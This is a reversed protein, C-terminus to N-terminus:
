ETVEEIEKKQWLRQSKAQFFLKTVNRIWGMHWALHLLLGAMMLYGSYVHIDTVMMKVSKGGSFLHFDLVVGTTICIFAAIFLMVDLIYNKKM